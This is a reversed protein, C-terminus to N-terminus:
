DIRYKGYYKEKADKVANRICKLYMSKNDFLFIVKLYKYLMFMDQKLNHYKKHIYYGSRFQYYYREPKDKGYKFVIKNGIKICETQAPHHNLVAENCRIIKYGKQKARLCFETDLGYFYTNPDYYGLKQLIKANYLSGTMDTYSISQTGKKEKRKHRDFNYQPCIIAVNSVDASSIYQRFIDLANNSFTGDPNMVLIWDAELECAKKFGKNVSACLGLNHENWIYEAKHENLLNFFIASNDKGTDDMLICYDLSDIYKEILPIDKEKPDYLAVIGIIRPNIKNM